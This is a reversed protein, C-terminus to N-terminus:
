RVKRKYFDEIMKEVTRVTYTEDPSLIANLLDRRDRFRETVLLQNKSFRSEAPKKESKKSM